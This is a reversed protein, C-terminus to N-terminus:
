IIIIFLAQKTNLIDNVIIVIAIQQIKNNKYKM